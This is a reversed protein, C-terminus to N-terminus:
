GHMVGCTQLEEFLKENMGFIEPVARVGAELPESTVRADLARQTQDDVV